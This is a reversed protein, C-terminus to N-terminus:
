RMKRTSSASSRLPHALRCASVTGLAQRTVPVFDNVTSVEPLEDSRTATTVPPQKNRSTRSRPCGQALARPAGAICRGGRPGEAFAGFKLKFFGAVAQM